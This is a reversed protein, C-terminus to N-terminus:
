QFFLRFGFLVFLSLGSIMLFLVPLSSFALVSTAIFPGRAMGAFRASNLFGIVGGRPESAFISMVLPITAAIFGTQIMRIATFDVLGRCFVLLSQFLIGLAFLIMVMRPVGARRSLWSWVYTGILATATYLMVVTGALKLAVTQELGFQKLVNPLISPLFMLQVQAMFCVMWGVLVRKEIPTRTVAKKEKPLQPVDTVYLYCFLFSTFLMISAAFFAGKFGLTGAALSGLPPGVLQGLTMSSQYVGMDFSLREKLSSSSIIIFGITSIGGVLGQAIRLILLLHLNTTLGMAFILISHVIFGRLYLMKPSYHHTLSGWFPSTFATVLGTSGLILGIWLLTEQISYPSIRYIYFPLFINVFSFSFAAGLQSFSIFLLNRQAPGSISPKM